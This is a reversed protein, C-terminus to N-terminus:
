TNRVVRMSARVVIWREHREEVPVPADDCDPYDWARLPGAGRDAVPLQVDGVGDITM